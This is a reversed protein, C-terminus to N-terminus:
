VICLVLTVSVWNRERSLDRSLFSSRGVLNVEAGALKKSDPTDDDDDDEEDDDDDCLCGFALCGCGKEGGRPSCRGETGWSRCDGGLGEGVVVVVAVVVVGVVAAGRKGRVARLKEGDTTASNLLTAAGLTTGRGPEFM